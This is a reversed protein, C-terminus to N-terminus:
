VSGDERKLGGVMRRAGNGAVESAQRSNGRGRQDVDFMRGIRSYIEWSIAGLAVDLDAGALIGV